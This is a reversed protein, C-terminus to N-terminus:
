GLKVLDLAGSNVEDAWGHSAAYDTLDYTVGNDVYYQGLAGGWNYWMSPMSGSQAATKCADKIGATDYYSVTVKINPNVENWIEVLADTGEQRKSQYWFSLEVADGTYEEGYAAAIAALGTESSAETSVAESASEVTEAVATTEAEGTTAATDVTETATGCGALSGLIMLGTITVAMTTKLSKKM